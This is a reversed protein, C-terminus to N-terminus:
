HPMGTQHLYALHDDSRPTVFDWHHGPYAISVVHRHSGYLHPFIHIGSALDSGPHQPTVGWGQDLAARVIKAAPHGQEELADSMAYLPTLDGKHAARLFPEVSKYDQDHYTYRSGLIGAPKWM